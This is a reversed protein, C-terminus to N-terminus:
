KSRPPPSAPSRGLSATRPGRIACRAARRLQVAREAGRADVVASYRVAAAEERVRFRRPFRVAVRTSDGVHDPGARPGPGAARPRGPRIPGEGEGRALWGRVTDPKRRLEVAIKAITKYEKRKVCASLVISEKGDKLGDAREDMQAISWEPMFEEGKQIREKGKATPRPGKAPTDRNFVENTEM